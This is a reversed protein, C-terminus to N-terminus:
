IKKRKEIRKLIRRDKKHGHSVEQHILLLFLAGRIVRCLILFRLIFRNILDIIRSNQSFKVSEPSKDHGFV